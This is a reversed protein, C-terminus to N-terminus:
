YIFQLFAIIIAVLIGIAGLIASYKAYKESNKSMKYITNEKQLKYLIDQGAETLQLVDDDKLGSKEIRLKINEGSSYLWIFNSEGGPTPFKSTRLELIPESKTVLATYIDSPYFGNEKIHSVSLTDVKDFLLVLKEIEKITM